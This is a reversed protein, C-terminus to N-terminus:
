RFKLGVFWLRIIKDKIMKFESSLCNFICPVFVPIETHFEEPKLM